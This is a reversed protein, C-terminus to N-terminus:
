EGAPCCVGELFPTVSAMFEKKHTNFAFHGAGPIVQIVSNSFFKPISKLSNDNYYQSNGGFVFLAPLGLRNAPDTPPEHCWVTKEIGQLLYDLNSQWKFNQLQSHVFATNGSATAADGRREHQATAKALDTLNSLLYRCFWIDLDGKGSKRVTDQLWAEADHM